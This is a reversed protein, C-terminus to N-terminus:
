SSSSSDTSSGTEEGDDMDLGFHIVPAAAPRPPSLRKPPGTGLPRGRGRGSSNQRSHLNPSRTFSSSAPTHISAEPSSSRSSSSSNDNYPATSSDRLKSPVRSQSNTSPSYHSSSPVGSDPNAKVRSIPSGSVKGKSKKNPTIQPSSLRKRKYSSEDNGRKGKGLSKAKGSAKEDSYYGAESSPSASRGADSPAKLQKSNARPAGRRSNSLGMCTSLHPAFRNSAIRQSCKLCKLLLNGDGKNNTPTSTGTQIKFDGNSSPSESRSPITQSQSSSGPLQAFSSPVHVSSCRTNCVNCVTSAKAIERHAQLTCDLVLEDLLSSLVLATLTGLAEDRESRSPM